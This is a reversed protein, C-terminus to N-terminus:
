EYLNMTRLGLGSWFRAGSTRRQTFGKDRLVMGLLNRALPKLGAGVAWARYAGYLATAAVSTEPAVVCCADLFEGFWDCESYFATSAAVVAEDFINIM